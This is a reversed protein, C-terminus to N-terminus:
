IGWVMKCVHNGQEDEKISFKGHQLIQLVVGDNPIGTNRAMESALNLKIYQVNEPNSTDVRKSVILQLKDKKM